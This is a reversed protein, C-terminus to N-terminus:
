NRSLECCNKTVAKLNGVLLMRVANSFSVGYIGFQLKVNNSAVFFCDGVCVKDLWCTVVM